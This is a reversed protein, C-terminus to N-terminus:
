HEARAARNVGRDHPQEYGEGGSACSSARTETLAGAFGVSDETAADESSLQDYHSAIARIRETSYGEPLKPKSM